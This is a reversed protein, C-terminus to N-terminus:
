CPATPDAKLAMGIRDGATVALYPGCAPITPNGSTTDREGVDNSGWSVLDGNAKLALNFTSGADIAVIDSLAEEPVDVQGSANDGWALVGGDKLALSHKYGASIATVGSRAAAPVDTQGNSNNGWALVGGGKLALSHDGGAAIATVGSQAAPPVDSRTGWGVVRGGEKLALNHM